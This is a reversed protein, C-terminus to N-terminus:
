HSGDVFLATRYYSFIENYLLFLFFDLFIIVKARQSLPVDDDDDYDGYHHENKIIKLKKALPIDDDDIITRAEQSLPVNGDNSNGRKM